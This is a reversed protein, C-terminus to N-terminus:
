KKCVGAQCTEGALCPVNCIGCNIPDNQLDQCGAAGPGPPQNPCRQHGPKCTEYNCQNAVCMPTVGPLDPLCVQCGPGCAAVDNAVCAAGCMHKPAECQCLNAVCSKGDVCVGCELAAGCGDVAQGCTFGLVACTKAPCKTCKNDNCDFGKDCANGCKIERSGGCNDFGLRTGCDKGACFDRDSEPVCGPAPPVYADPQEVQTVDVGADLPASYQTVDQKGADTPTPLSTSGFLDEGGNAGSCAVVLSLSCLIAVLIKKM